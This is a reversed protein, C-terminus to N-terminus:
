VGEPIRLEAVFDYADGRYVSKTFEVVEGSGLFSLRTVNLCATGEDCKLLIADEKKINTAKLHQIARVPKKGIKELTEYLSNEVNLPDKLIYNPLTAREIAMPIDNAFRLRDIRSVTESTSIALNMIEEPSPASIARNLWRSTTKIGRFQMDETFSTLRSLSQEVRQVPEAILSGSGQKQEVLGSKVLPAIAKRVTVRSLGTLKAIEREPPLPIGPPLKGDAIAKEIQRQLQIYRLGGKELLWNSPSFIEQYNM